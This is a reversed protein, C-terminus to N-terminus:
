AEIAMLTREQAILAALAEQRTCIAFAVTDGPGLQGALGIDASIVVAVKPYGGTTQRDAMLLIPQGSAPVQVAGLPSPDSIMETKVAHVIPPGDLRYGMRDSAPQITYPESQIRDFADPAFRQWQPGPLIRLRAHGRPMAIAPARASVAPQGAAPTGLPLVDGATLARGQHGGLGSPLHTSRSGFLPPVDIGGAIALYARSGRSRGGIKLRARRPVRFPAGSAVLRDGVTVVFDAGCVAITRDEDFELEPGLLTMELTAAAPANGVLANAIRHARLDMAGSVSVGSEQWGWRGGDQVTTQLGPRIVHVLSSGGSENPGWGGGESEFKPPGVTARAPSPRRASVSIGQRPDVPGRSPTAAPAESSASPTAAPAATEREYEASDIPYFQVTDGPKFLCANERALDFPRLPTRGILTWGGPSDTPYIGTQRGAIGVSGAPVSLRPEARRPAALREDVPGLYAFGPVFGIMFVRYRPACHCAVTEEVSLGAAAALGALDPGYEGGYCVPVRVLVSEVQAADGSEAALSELALLLRGLDTGLPDFSVGVSRYTPVVDRVGPIRAARVARAVATARGNVGVDIREEFEILVTADGAM